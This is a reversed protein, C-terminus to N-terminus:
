KRAERMPKVKWQYIGMVSNFLHFGALFLNGYQTTAYALYTYPFVNIFGGAFGQWHKKRILTQNVVTLVAVLYSLLPIPQTAQQVLWRM